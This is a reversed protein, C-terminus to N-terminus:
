KSEREISKRHIDYLTDLTGSKGKKMEKSSKVIEKQLKKDKIELFDEYDDVSIWVIEPESNKEIIIPTGSKAKAMMEGFSLKAQTASVTFPVM